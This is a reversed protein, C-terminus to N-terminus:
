PIVKYNKSHASKKLLLFGKQNKGLVNWVGYTRKQGQNGKYSKEFADMDTNIFGYRKEPPSKKSVNPLFTSEYNNFLDKAKAHDYIVVIFTEEEQTQVVWMFNPVDLLAGDEHGKFNVVDGSSFPISSGDWTTFDEQSEPYLRENPAFPHSHAMFLINEGEEVDYRPSVGGTSGSESFKVFYDNGKKYGSISEEHMDGEFSRNWMDSLDSEFNKMVDNVYSATVNKMFKDYYSYPNESKNEGDLFGGYLNADDLPELGELEITSILQNGSFQYPTWQPYKSALPDVAFFRNLRVDAMRYKFNVSNGKGKIEDDTEQGQFNYRYNESQGNRGPQLM